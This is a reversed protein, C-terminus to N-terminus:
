DRLFLAPPKETPRQGLLAVALDDRADKTDAVLIIKRHQFLDATFAGPRIDYQM